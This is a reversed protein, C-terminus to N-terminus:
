LHHQSRLDIKFRALVGIVYIFSDHLGRPLAHEHSDSDGKWSEDPSSFPVDVKLGVVIIMGKFVIRAFVALVMFM